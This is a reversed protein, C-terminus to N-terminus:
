YKYLLSNGSGFLVVGVAIGLLFLGSVHKDKDGM